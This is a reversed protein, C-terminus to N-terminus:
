GPNVCCPIFPVGGFMGANDIRLVDCTYETVHYYGRGWTIDLDQPYSFDPTEFIHTTFFTLDRACGTFSYDVPYTNNALILTPNSQEYITAALALFGARNTVVTNSVNYSAYEFSYVPGLVTTELETIILNQVTTDDTSVLQSFLDTFKNVLFNGQVYADTRYLVENKSPCDCRNDAALYTSSAILAATFLKLFM